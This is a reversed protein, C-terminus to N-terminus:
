WWPPPGRLSVSARSNRSSIGPCFEELSRSAGRRKERRHKRGNIIFAHFLVILTSASPNSIMVAIRNREIDSKAGCKKKKRVGRAAVAEKLNQM